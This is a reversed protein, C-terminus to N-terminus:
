QERSWKAAAKGKFEEKLFGLFDDNDLAIERMTDEGILEIAVSATRRAGERAEGQANDLLYEYLADSVQEDSIEYEYPADDGDYLTFDSVTYHLKM